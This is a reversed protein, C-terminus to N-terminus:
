MKYTNTHIYKNEMYKIRSIKIIEIERRLMEIRHYQLRNKCELKHMPNLPKNETSQLRHM